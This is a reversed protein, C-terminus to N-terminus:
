TDRACRLLGEFRPPAVTRLASARGRSSRRTSIPLSAMSCLIAKAESAFVFAGRHWAFLLPKVGFRDRALLLENRRSDWLVFSFEGNLHPFFSEGYEEYLHLIVESDSATPFLTDREQLSARLADHHDIEGNYVLALTHDENYVPQQCLGRDTFGLRLFGLLMAGGDLRSFAAGEPGRHRIASMMRRLECHEATRGNRHWIGAIGCM